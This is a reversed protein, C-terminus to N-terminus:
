TEEERLKSFGASEFHEALNEVVHFCTPSKEIFELMRISSELYKKDM